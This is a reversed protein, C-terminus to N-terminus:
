RLRINESSIKFALNELYTCCKRFYRFAISNKFKLQCFSLSNIDQNLPYAVKKPFFPVCVLGSFPNKLNVAVSSTFLRTKASVKATNTYEELNEESNYITKGDTLTRGYEIYEKLSRNLLYNYEAFSIYTTRILTMRDYLENQKTFLLSSSDTGTIVIRKDIYKDSLSSALQIFNDAKTIEDIFIYKQPLKDLVRELTIYNDNGTCQILATDECNMSRITQVM